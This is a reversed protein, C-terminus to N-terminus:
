RTNDASLVLRTVSDTFWREFHATTWHRDGTLRCFVVPDMLTWVTDIAAARDTGERLASRHMIGDVLWSAMVERQSMLQAAVTAIDEDARAAELATAALGAAREASGALVRAFAAVFDPPGAISEARKAWQRDLMAVQDNDGAIAVDIVAKLLRAKTRFALEVTPLAVGADLAVARMTTGAYGHALFRQAAAAIIRARTRRAQMERRLSRYVRPATGGTGTASM